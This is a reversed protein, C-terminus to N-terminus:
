DIVDTDFEQPSCDVAAAGAKTDHGTLV